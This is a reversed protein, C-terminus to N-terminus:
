GHAPAPLHGAALLLAALLVAAADQCAALVPYQHLGAVLEALEDPDPVVGRGPVLGQELAMAVPEAAAPPDQGVRGVAAPFRRQEVVVPLLRALGPAGGLAGGQLGRRSGRGAAA